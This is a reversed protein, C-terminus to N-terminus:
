KLIDWSRIQALREDQANFNDSDDYHTPYLM